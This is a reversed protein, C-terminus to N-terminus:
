SGEQVSRCSLYLIYTHIYTHLHFTSLGRHLRFSRNGPVLRRNPTVDKRTPTSQGSIDDGIEHLIYTFTWRTVRFNSYWLEDPFSAEVMDFWAFSHPHMWVERLCPPNLCGLIAQLLAYQWRKLAKLLPALSSRTEDRLHSLRKRKKLAVLWVISKTSSFRGNLLNVDTKGADTRNNIMFKTMVNDFYSHIRKHRFKNDIVPCVYWFRVDIQKKRYCITFNDARTRQRM